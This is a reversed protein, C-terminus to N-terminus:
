FVGRLDLLEGTSTWNSSSDSTPHILLHFVSLNGKILENSGSPHKIQIILDSLTRAVEENMSGNQSSFAYHQIDGSIDKIKDGSIQIGLTTCSVLINQSTSNREFVSAEENNRKSVLYVAEAIEKIHRPEILKHGKTRQISRKLAVAIAIMFVLAIVGIHWPHFPLLGYLEALGLGLLLILSTRQPGSFGLRYAHDHDGRMFEFFFRGVSYTLVYWAFAQGPASGSVVFASGVLVIILCWLSEVLQIPFLRVAVFCPTFGAAAHEEHYCVGWHHPRGHCCGVMFCGVRTCALYLGVGLITVDLYPLVPLNLLWLVFAVVFIVAIKQHYAVLKERGTIIKTFMAVSLAASPAILVIGILVVYSLGQRTVLMAALLIALVLGALGCAQFSSIPRRLLRVEPRVLKDLYYNFLKCLLM